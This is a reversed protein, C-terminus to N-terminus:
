ARRLDFPAHHEGGDAETVRVDKEHVLGRVMEVHLGDVRESVRQVLELTADDEIVWSACM